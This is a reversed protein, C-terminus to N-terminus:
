GVIANLWSDYDRVIRAGFFLFEFWALVLFPGFALPSQMVGDADDHGNLVDEELERKAEEDGADAAEKLLRLEEKVGEPIGLKVGFLRLGIAIVSGQVAGAFIVFFAGRWGFWAGALMLLKWDGMGLGSRGRVLRYFRDFGALVVFAGIASAVADIPSFGRMYATAAGVIAGGISITDPIYMWDLDIFTAAVLALAVAFTAGYVALAKGLPWESAHQLICTEVLAWGIGGGILEVLPYRPSVKVGCCAAKGGLFFWSLVPLNQWPRIPKQCAPCHSPPSVVSLGRPVRHIVVNLFSGWLLGFITGFVRFIWPPIELITM